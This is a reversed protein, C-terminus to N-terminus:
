GGQAKGGEVEEGAPRVDGAVVEGELVIVHAPKDDGSGGLRLGVSDFDIATALLFEATGIEGLLLGHGIRKSSAMVCYSLEQVM